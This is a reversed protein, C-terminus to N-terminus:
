ITASFGGDVVIQQATMYSAADSALFVAAGALDHPKGWRRLPVRSNIRAVFAEDKLLPATLDTEFWGPCIANCTIGHEGLEAALSRALGALGSKSAVYAHVTSRGLIAL